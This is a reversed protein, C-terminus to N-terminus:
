LANKLRKLCKKGTSLIRRLLPKKTLKVLQEMDAGRNLLGFFRKRNAHMKVSKRSDAEPPLLVDLKGQKVNLESAIQAWLRRGKESHVLVVSTGRDDDMEPMHKQIGWADGITLDSRRPLDKFRCSHCSPRLCINALFLRMYPNTSLVEGYQTEDSFNLVMSFTKWGKRKSRFSAGVVQSGRKM